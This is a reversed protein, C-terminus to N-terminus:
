LEKMVEGVARAALRKRQDEPLGASMDRVAQLKVMMRELKRVEEDDLEKDDEDGDGDRGIDGTGDGAGGSDGGTVKERKASGSPEKGM